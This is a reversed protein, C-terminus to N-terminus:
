LANVLLNDRSALNTRGRKQAGCDNCVHRTFKSLNTYYYGKNTLNTSGCTGCRMEDDGEYMALNPHNKMYPRLLLYLQELIVVDNKNYERMKKWAKRDGALCDTWLEFGDTDIKHQLGLHSVLFELKNSMFRFNNKAVKLTDISKYPSPPAMGARLFAANIHKIDFGDGNHAVVIDAEDMLVWLPSVLRSEEEACLGGGFYHVKKEGVWKAAWCMIFTTSIIQNLGVNQDWLGWTYVVNPATEIDLVLIKASM